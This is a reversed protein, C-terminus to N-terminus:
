IIHETFIEAVSCQFKRRISKAQAWKHEIENLDPSYPPLFEITHGAGSVKDLIDQRKHFAANDLILVADTPLKPLLDVEIWASFIDSNINGDFLSTTLLDKGLQAGIVNTRGRAGWDCSDFCREGRTAYGYLRPM